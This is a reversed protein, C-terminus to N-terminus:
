RQGLENTSHPYLDNNTIIGCVGVVLLESSPSTSPAHVALRVFFACSEHTGGRRSTSPSSLSAIHVIVTFLALAYAARWAAIVLALTTKFFQNETQIPQLLIM